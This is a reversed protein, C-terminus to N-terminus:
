SNNVSGKESFVDEAQLRGSVLAYVLSLSKLRLPTGRPCLPLISEPLRIISARLGQLLPLTILCRRQNETSEGAVTNQWKALKPASDKRVWSPSKRLQNAM